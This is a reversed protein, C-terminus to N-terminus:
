DDDRNGKINQPITEVLRRKKKEHSSGPGYQKTEQLHISKSLHTGYRLQQQQLNSFVNAQILAKLTRTIKKLQQFPSKGGRKIPKSKFM